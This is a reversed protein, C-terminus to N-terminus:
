RFIVGNALAFKWGIADSYPIITVTGSSSVQLIANVSVDTNNYLNIPIRQTVSPADNGISGLVLSGTRQTLFPLSFNIFLKNGEVGYKYYPVLNSSLDSILASNLAFDKITTSNGSKNYKEKNRVYGEYLSIWTISGNRESPTGSPAGISISIKDTPTDLLYPFRLFTINEYNGTKGTDSYITIGNAQVIFYCNETTIQGSLAITYYSGKTLLKSLKYESIAPTNVATKPVDGNIILDDSSYCSEVNAFPFRAVLVCQAMYTNNADYYVSNRGTDYQLTSHYSENKKHLYVCVHDIKLFNNERGPTNTSDFNDWSFFLVDGPEVNSFDSNPKFTYGKEFGYSALQYAYRYKYANISNYFLNNEINEANNYRTKEFPIGKIMLNAFSSCDMHYLGNVQQVTTDYPTYLNGYSLKSINNQYTQAVSILREVSGKSNHIASPKESIVSNVQKFSNTINNIETSIIEKKIELDSIYLNFSSKFDIYLYNSKTSMSSLDLTFLIKNWQNANGLNVLIGATYAMRVLVEKNSVSPKAMFSINIKDTQLMVETLLFSFDKNTDASAEYGIAEIKLTQKDEYLPNTFNYVTSRSVISPLKKFNSNTLLGREKYMIKDVSKLLESEISPIKSVDPLIGNLTTVNQALSSKVGRITSGLTAGGDRADVLELNANTASLALAEEYNEGILSYNRELNENATNWDDLRFKDVAPNDYIPLQLNTTKKM